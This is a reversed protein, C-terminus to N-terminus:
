NKWDPNQKTPNSRFGAYNFIWSKTGNYPSIDAQILLNM